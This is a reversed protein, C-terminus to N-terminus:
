LVHTDLSMLILPCLWNFSLQPAEFAWTATQVYFMQLKIACAYGSVHSDIRCRRILM